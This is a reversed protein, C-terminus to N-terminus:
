FTGFLKSIRAQFGEEIVREVEQRSMPPVGGLLKEMEAVYSEAVLDPGAALVQGLKNYAPGPEVLRKRFQVAQEPSAGNTEGVDEDALASLGTRDAFDGLAYKRFLGVTAALRSVNRPALLMPLPCPLFSAPSVVNEAAM